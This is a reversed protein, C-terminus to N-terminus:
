KNLLKKIIEIANKEEKGELINRFMAKEDESMETLLETKDIDIKKEGMSWTPFDRNKIPKYSIIISNTHREDKKIVDYLESIDDKEGEICQIFSDKSYLLLGTINKKQNKERSKNLIKTIEEESCKRKSVYIIQYLM